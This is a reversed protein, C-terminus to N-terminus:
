AKKMYLHIAMSTYVHTEPGQANPLHLDVDQWQAKAVTPQAQALEEAEEDHATVDHARRGPTGRPQLTEIDFEDRGGRSGRGKGRKLTPPAVPAPSGGLKHKLPWPTRLVLFGDLTLLDVLKQAQVMVRKYGIAEQV